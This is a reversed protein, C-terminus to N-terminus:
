NKAELTREFEKQDFLVDTTTQLYAITAQAGPRTSTLAWPYSLSFSGVAALDVGGLNLIHVRSDHNGGQKRTNVCVVKKNTKQKM